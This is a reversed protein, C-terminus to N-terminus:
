IGNVVCGEDQGLFTYSLEEGDELGKVNVVYIEGPVVDIANDSFDLGPREDFILGKTPRRASIEIKDRAEALKVILGRDDKFSLYKFPQPWDVNRSSVQGGIILTAAIVYAEQWTPNDLEMGESIVTTANPAMELEHKQKPLVDCGTRISIFRVQVIAKQSEANVAKSSVVWLDYKSKKPPITHGKTWDELTRQVGVAISGLTQKITYFAPKKVLLHDIIAWSTGPWCDNLQWVLAGGCRRQSPSGWERRWSRYAYLLAESQLLQTLYIWYQM